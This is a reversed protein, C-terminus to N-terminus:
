LLHRDHMKIKSHQCIRDTGLKFIVDSKDAQLRIGGIRISKFSESGSFRMKVSNGTSVSNGWIAMIFAAFSSIIFCMLFFSDFNGVDDNLSACSEAM